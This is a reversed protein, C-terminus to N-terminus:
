AVAKQVNSTSVLDLVDQLVVKNKKCDEILQLALSMADVVEVVNATPGVDSKVESDTSETTQEPQDAKAADAMAKRLASLNTFGKKSTRNFADAEAKTNVYWEDDSRRQKTISAIGCDQLRDSSIRGGEAELRLAIMLKGLRTDFGDDATDRKYSFMTRDAKAKRSKYEAGLAKGESELTNIEAQQVTATSKAM